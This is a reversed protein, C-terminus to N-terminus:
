PAAPVLPDAAGTGALRRVCATSTAAIRELLCGAADADLLREVAAQPRMMGAAVEDRIRERLTQAQDCGTRVADHAAADWECIADTALSVVVHASSMLRDLAPVHDAVAPEDLSAVLGALGDIAVASVQLDASCALVTATFQLDTAVPRFRVLFEVADLHIEHALGAIDDHLTPLRGLPVLRREAASAITAVFAAEVLTALRALRERLQARHQDIQM